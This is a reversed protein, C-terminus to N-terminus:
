TSNRRLGSKKHQCCANKRRFHESFRQASGWPVQHLREFDAARDPLGLAEPYRMATLTESSVPETELGTYEVSLGRREAELWTMFANLGTGFGVELVAIRDTEKAKWLLGAGIFVHASETVAGHKSHYSVGYKASVLTNSGDSTALPVTDPQPM